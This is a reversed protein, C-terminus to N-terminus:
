VSSSIEWHIFGPVNERSGYSFAKEKPSLNISKIVKMKVTGNNIKKRPKALLNTILNKVLEKVQLVM